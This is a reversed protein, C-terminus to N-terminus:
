KNCIFQSRKVYVCVGVCSVIRHM